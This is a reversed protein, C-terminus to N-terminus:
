SNAPQNYITMIQDSTLASSYQRLDDLLGTYNGQFGDSYAGFYISTSADDTYSGNFTQTLNGNIYLNITNTNQVIGYHTWASTQIFTTENADGKINLKADGGFFIPYLRNTFINGLSIQPSPTSVWFTRSFISPTTKDIRLYNEQGLFKFVFGRTSDNFMTVGNHNIIPSGNPDNTPVTTTNNGKIRFTYAPTTVVPPPVVILINQIAIRSGYSKFSSFGM